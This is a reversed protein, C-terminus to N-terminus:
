DHTESPEIPGSKRGGFLGRTVPALLVIALGPSLWFWREEIFGLWFAPAALAAAFVWTRLGSVGRRPTMVIWVYAPFALGYFGMFARYLDDTSLGWGGTFRNVPILSILLGILIPSLLDRRQVERAHAGVTFCAQLLMHGLVYYSLSSREIAGGAYLATALIMPVFLAVFGLVFAASGTAGPTERRVRHFTADLFPCAGFGFALVPTLWLLGIPASEGSWTPMVISHRGFFLWTALLMASGLWAVVAIWTWARSSASRGAWGAGVLALVPAAIMAPDIWEANMQKLWPAFASALMRGILWAVFFGHFAITVLSFWRMAPAFRETLRESAGPRRLALGMGAAGLVNPAAFAIFGMWGFERLLIVPLWMGICWTWSCALFAGRGLATPWHIRNSATPLGTVRGM